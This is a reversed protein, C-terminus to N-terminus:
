LKGFLRLAEKAAMQESERKSRGEGTGVPNSSLVAQTVFVKDHDPGRQSILVYELKEGKNNQVLQQLLSKYDTPATSEPAREM